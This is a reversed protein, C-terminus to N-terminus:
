SPGRVKSWGFCWLLWRRPLRPEASRYRLPFKRWDDPYQACAKLISPGPAVANVRIRREALDAAMGRTLSVIAAKFVNYLLQDPKVM